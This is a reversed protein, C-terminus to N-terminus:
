GRSEKPAEFRVDVERAGAALAASLAVGFAQLVADHRGEIALEGPGSERALGSPAAAERAAAIAEDPGPVTVRATLEAPAAPM